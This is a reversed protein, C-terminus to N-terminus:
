ARGRLVDVAREQREELVKVRAEVRDLERRMEGVAFAAGAADTVQADPCAEAIRAILDALAQQTQEIRELAGEITLAPAPADREESM